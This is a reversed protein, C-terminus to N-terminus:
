TFCIDLACLLHSSFLQSDYRTELAVYCKYLYRMCVSLFYKGNRLILDLCDRLSIDAGSHSVIRILRNGVKEHNRLEFESICYCYINIDFRNIMFTNEELVSM